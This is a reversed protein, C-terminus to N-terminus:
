KDMAKKFLYGKYETNNAIAYSIYYPDLNLDEGAEKQTRYLKGTTICLITRSTVPFDATYTVNNTEESITTSKEGSASGTEVNEPSTYDFQSKLNSASIRRGNLYFLLGASNMSDIKDIPVCSEIETYFLGKGDKDKIQFKIIIM